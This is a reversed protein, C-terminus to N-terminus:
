PESESNMRLRSQSGPISLPGMMPNRGACGTKERIMQFLKAQQEVTLIQKEALLNAIVREQMKRQGALIEEQKAAIAELDPQPAAILDILESRKRNIDQCLTESDHQFQVVRPELRGWQENTVDLSRHLPCWVGECAQGRREPGIWRGRAAHVVWGGIFAVNLAVSLVVLLPAIKKWM